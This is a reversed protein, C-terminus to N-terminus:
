SIFFYETLNYKTNFKALYYDSMGSSDYTTGVIGIIYTNNGRFFGSRACDVFIEGSLPTSFEDNDVKKYDLVYSINTFTDYKVRIIRLEM